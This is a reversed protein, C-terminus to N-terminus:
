LSHFILLTLPDLQIHSFIDLDLFPREFKLVWLELKQILNTIPTMMFNCYLRNNLEDLEHPLFKVSQTSHGHGKVSNHVIEKVISDNLRAVLTIEHSRIINMNDHLQRGSAPSMTVSGM